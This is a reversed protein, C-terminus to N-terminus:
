NILPIMVMMLPRLKSAPGTTNTKPPTARNNLTPNHINHDQAQTPVMHQLDHGNLESKVIPKCATQYINQSYAQTDDGNKIQQMRLKPRDKKASYEHHAM